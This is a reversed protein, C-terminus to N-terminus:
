DPQQNSFFLKNSVQYYAREYPPLCTDGVYAKFGFDFRQLCQQAVMTVGDFYSYFAKNAPTLVSPQPFLNKENFLCSLTAPINTQSVIEHVTTDKKVAGGIFVLPIRFNATDYAPANNPRVTGHDATIIILTNQWKDSHKLRDLLQGLCSDTYGISNLYPNEKKKYNPVDFPEHSSLSFMMSFQPIKSALFDDGFRNFVVEDHVGWANAAHGEFDSETVIQKAQNFLVKINAFELNGGYYFRTNYSDNFLSFVSPKNVLYEPFNTLTQHSTAPVGYTLALLGKDSRFSSAYAQTFSIGQKMWHDLNPTSAYNEGYLFGSTKASFSELVILLVNTSDNVNVLTSYDSTSSDCYIEDYLTQAKADDFFTMSKNREKEVESSAAAWIANVATNNYTNNSSYYASSLSIPVKDISGRIMAGALLALILLNFYSMHSPITLLRKWKYTFLSIALFVFSFAILYHSVEISAFGATEKGLFQTFSTNAKQGWYFFFFPDASLVIAVAVFVVWFYVNEVRLFRKGVLKFLLATLVPIVMIYGVVSLDLRLGNWWMQPFQLIDAKFDSANIALFYLKAFAFLVLWVTFQKLLYTIPKIM